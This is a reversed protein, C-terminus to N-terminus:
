ETIPIGNEIFFKKIEEFREDPFIDVCRRMPIFALQNCHLCINVQSILRNSKNYFLAVHNYIPTCSSVEYENQRPVKRFIELFKNQQQFTLTIEKLPKQLPHGLSDVFGLGNSIRLMTREGNITTGALDFSFTKPNAVLLVARAIDRDPICTSTVLSCSCFSVITFFYIFKM